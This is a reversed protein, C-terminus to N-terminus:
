HEYIIQGEALIRKIFPRHAIRKLESSTYILMDVSRGKLKAYIEEFRDYRDFFREATEVVLLLDVDSKRSGTRRSFSGFLIARDVGLGRLTPTLQAKIAEIEIAEM